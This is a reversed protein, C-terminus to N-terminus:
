IVEFGYDAMLGFVPGNQLKLSRARPSTIGFAVRALFLPDDRVDTAALIQKIKGKDIPKPEVVPLHLPQGSFCFTCHGCKEKGDPLNTGFHKAISLAFCQNGTIFDVVQQIRELAQKERYKMDEYLQETLTKIEKVSSPLSKLVKYKHEVGSVNLKIVGAGNLENLLRVLDTRRLGTRQAVSSLDIAHYLKAKKANELVAKAEPSNLQKLRPVYNPTAEFKYSSYEPTTARILNFRLELAAYIISLTTPRIDFDSSQSYHSVKFTDGPELGRNQDLFLNELLNYVSRQSPIDGRAFNEKVYYDEPCLYLLCYSDKGDRGARGVQQCYEEVTSPLDWHLM